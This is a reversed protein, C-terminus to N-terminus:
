SNTSLERHVSWCSFSREYSSVLNFVERLNPSIIFDDAIRKSQINNITIRM